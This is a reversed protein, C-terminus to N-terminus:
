RKSSPTALAINSMSMSPHLSAGGIGSATGITATRPAKTSTGKAASALLSSDGPASSDGGTTQRKAQGLETARCRSAFNLSCITEGLNYSAPSINVFTLVKSNGGLSDQLLFTLKSNRYPVHLAKKNGLANIVDGLALLSKNINQAEKLREGTADTKSVRESGALDILHLKGFTTSGDILNRGVARNEKGLSMLQSVQEMNTITVETLGPVTNGEPTQRIELKDKVGSKGTDLLDRITENYIELMSLTLTYTWSEALENVQRFLEALARPSVGVQDGYGEMTYTKGSGTQGYAFICVNFGDLVSVCLPQVVEFVEDQSSAQGLVRDYEYKAKTQSDRHIVLEEDNMIETVDVSEGSRREVELVPRVRCIVRINGQLELLKNHITKRMRREKTYNALHEDREAYAKAISDELEKRLAALATEREVDKQKSLAELAAAREAEQRAVIGSLEGELKTIQESHRSIVADKEECLRKSDEEHRQQMALRESQWQATLEQERAVLIREHVSKLEERVSGIETMKQENLQSSLSALAHEKEESLTKQLEAQKTALTQAHQDELAKTQSFFDNQLREGQEALAASLRAEAEERAQSLSSQFADELEKVKSRLSEEQHVRQAEKEKTLTTIDAEYTSKLREMEAKREAFDSQHQNTLSELAIAHEALMKRQTEALQEAHQARLTELDMRAKSLQEELARIQSLYDEVMGAADSDRSQADVLAKEYRNREVQLQSEASALLAKVKGVEAELLSIKEASQGWQQQQEERSSTLVTLQEKLEKEASLTTDLRHQLASLANTQEDVKKQSDILRQNADALQASQNDLETQTKALHGQVAILEREKESLKVSIEEELNSTKSPPECTTAANNSSSRLSELELQLSRLEQLHIEEKAKLDGKERELTAVREELAQLAATNPASQRQPSSPASSIKTNKFAKLEDEREKLDFQLTVIKNKAEKLEKQLVALDADSTNVTNTSQQSSAARDALESISHELAELRTVLIENEKTVEAIRHHSKQQMLETEAALKSYEAVLNEVTENREKDRVEFDAKMAVLDNKVNEFRHSLDEYSKKLIQLNNKEQLSQRLQTEVEYLSDELVKKESMLKQVQLSDASLPTNPLAASGEATSQLQSQLQRIEVDKEAMVIRSQKSLEFHQMQADELLKKYSELENEIKKIRGLETEDEESQDTPRMEADLNELAQSLVSGAARWLSRADSLM